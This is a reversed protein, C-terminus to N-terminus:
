RGRGCACSSRRSRADRPARRLRRARTRGAFLARLHELEGRCPTALPRDSALKTHATAGDTCAQCARCPKPVCSPANASHPHPREVLRGTLEGRASRRRSRCPRVVRKDSSARRSVGERRARSAALRQRAECLPLAGLPVSAARNAQRGPGVHAAPPQRPPRAPRRRGLFRHDLLSIILELNPERTELCDALTHVSYNLRLGADWLLRAFVGKAERISDSDAVADLLIVIDAGSYPFTEGRGYAGVALMAARQPLAREVSARFADRVIADTAETLGALVPAARGTAHFATEIDRWAASYQLKEPTGTM